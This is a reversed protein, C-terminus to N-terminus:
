TFRLKKAIDIFKLGGYGQWWLEISLNELGLGTGEPRTRTELAAHKIISSGVIWVKICSLGENSGLSSIPLVQQPAQDQGQKRKNKASTAATPQIHVASPTGATQEIHTLIYNGFHQGFTEELTVFLKEELFGLVLTAYTPAVKTGM